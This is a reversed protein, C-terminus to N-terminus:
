ALVKEKQLKEVPEIDRFTFRNLLEVLPNDLDISDILASCLQVNGDAMLALGQHYSTNKVLKMVGNENEKARQKIKKELANKKPIDKEADIEKKLSDLETLVKKEAPGIQGKFFNTQSQADVRKQEYTKKMSELTQRTIMQLGKHYPKINMLKCNEPLYIEIGKGMAYMMLGEAGAKQYVYETGNAGGSNSAMEVGYMEIRDFGEHIALALMYSITSPMYIQDPKNERILNEFIPDIIDWPYPISNPFRPPNEIISAYKLKYKQYAEESIEGKELREMLADAISDLVNVGTYDAHTYIKFDHEKQLWEFHENDKNEPSGQFANYALLEIPHIEFLRDVRPVDYRWAFNVSWMEDAKSDKAFQLSTQAFGVIAVTRKKM